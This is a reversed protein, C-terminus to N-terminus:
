KRNKKRIFIVVLFLPLVTVFELGASDIVPPEISDSYTINDLQAGPELTFNISESTTIETDTVDIINASNLYVQMRGSEERTIKFHLWGELDSAHQYEQLTSREPLIVLQIKNDPLIILVYGVDPHSGDCVGGCTSQGVFMFFTGIIESEPSMLDFSWTGTVTSHNRWLSNACRNPPFPHTWCDASSVLVRHKTDVSFNGHTIFWDDLSSGDDFTTEWINTANVSSINSLLLILVGFLIMVQQKLLVNKVM